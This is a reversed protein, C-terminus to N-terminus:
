VIGMEVHEKIFHYRVDIHKTRSHQVPNCSIVIAVKSDYYMPIKDFHFGYDTLQTRLWLVQACYASLSVYKAKVLSMLTCDQKKSSCSVLNDGGLSQIGSSTSKRTDLCGAHDLDLFSTLNFGTDRPYLLGVNVANKFYWFIRKVERLHKKTTRAQYRACYCTAHVIDPRSAKLYMFARVMSHYTKQDVLTGSLDADIPKTAMPTGVCTKPAQKLGYLANKLHHVKDPHHLDVFRDPQNVYVEEKMHCNLFSTKFDMSCSRISCQLLHSKSTSEKMDLRDFQHLEELMAEIWASDAMAEKINKLETRSMTLAFMCMEGDTELQRRTRISQSPNGIVQQLPHDILHRGENKYRHVLCTSLNMKTLKHMNKIPKQKFLTENATVTPAETPAQSTTKPTTQINLLPTDIVVTTSTSSTIHQQQRQNPADITTVTSSKSVVQTTGNLLEDFMQSFLLDMENSTTITKALYPVNEQSRPGLSLSAHELTSTSCQPVPDFSVHDSEIQPLEDLNLHITEVIVRTRKNYVRYARSQTSYRVFICADDIEKMKDLNKGYKAKGLECSSCLHDKVFKLKRLGAVIDYKSLLNLTDINLHSLRRHWLWAESPSAKAMLFIPNPTSTDQLTISYLDTGCSGKLIDNGKLDRIYCTSNGQVLDEYGLISAIQDNGFKATGLFKEVFNSLLKLNGTMHKSCRFDVIFIIIKILKQLPEVDFIPGSNDAADLTVKQIQAMYMYDAEINEKARTVNVVRQWDPQLQLLFLVDLQHNTVDCKNQVLENIMKYFRSYYSELSKGDQSTFKRFEWYLNTELDQVNISEGQKLREFVKCMECANLCADVTSYIYNDIRDDEDEEDEGGDDDDGPEDDECGGSGSGGDYEPQSELQTLMSHTSQSPPPIITGQGPFVREVGPIHGRQKGGRIIAMIEDETYPVGMPTNSGLGQLRLM